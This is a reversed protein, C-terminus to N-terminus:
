KRERKSSEGRKKQMREKLKEIWHERPTTEWTKDVVDYTSKDFFEVCVVGAGRGDFLEAAYGAALSSDKPNAGEIIALLVHVVAAPQKKYLERLPKPVDLLRFMGTEPAPTSIWADHDYVAERILRIEDPSLEKGTPADGGVCAVSAALALVTYLSRFLM